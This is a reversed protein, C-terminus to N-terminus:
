KVTIKQKSKKKNKKQTKQNNSNKQDSPSTSHIPSRLWPQAIQAVSKNDNQPASAARLPTASLCSNHDTLMKTSPQDSQKTALNYWRVAEKFDTVVGEGKAYCTALKFQAEQDGQEAALTYWRIAEKLDKICGKGNEYYIGLNLQAEVVGQKALLEFLRLAEKCDENVGEGNNYCIALNFQARKQGQQAALRYYKVAEKIDKTVGEGKAYCVGLNYQALENGQEASLKFLKFAEKSDKNVGEGNNYCMALNFQAHKQGQQAALRYCKVAEKLDKAVGDGNKYCIGLIHQADRDGQEASLKLLRVAEKCDKEVIEGNLYFRALNFQAEKNGQEVALSFWKVAEKLDKDVAEGIEYLTGLYYQANQNGQEASLKFLRIAEKSDKEVIEGKIYFTGLRAQALSLGAEAASQLLDFAKKHFSKVTKTESSSRAKQICCYALMYKALCHGLAASSELWFFCQKEDNFKKQAFDYFQLALSYQAAPNDAQALATIQVLNKQLNRCLGCRCSFLTFDQQMEKGPAIEQKSDKPEPMPQSSPKKRDAVPTKDGPLKIGIGELYRVIEKKDKIYAECLAAQWEKLNTQRQEPTTKKNFIKIAELKGGAVAKILPSEESTSASTILIPGFKDILNEVISLNTSFQDIAHIITDAKEQPSFIEPNLKELKESFSKVKKSDLCAETIISHLQKLSVSTQPPKPTKSEIPSAKQESGCLRKKFFMLLSEVTSNADVPERIIDGVLTVGSKNKLGRLYIDREGDQKKHKAHKPGDIEIIIIKGTKRDKFAADVCAYKNDVLIEEIGKEGDCPTYREKFWPSIQLANVFHHQLSDEKPQRRGRLLSVIIKPLPLNAWCLFEAYQQVAMALKKSRLIPKEPEIKLKILEIELKESFTNVLIGTKSGVLRTGPKKSIVLAYLTHAIDSLSMTSAIDATNLRSVLANAQGSFVQTQIDQGSSQLIQGISLLVKTAVKPWTACPKTSILLELAKRMAESSISKPPESLFNIERCIHAIQESIEALIKHDNDNTTSKADATIDLFHTFLDVNLNAIDAIALQYTLIRLQQLGKLIADSKLPPKTLNLLLQNILNSSLLAPLRHSSALIAFGTLLRNTVDSPLDPKELRQELWKLWDEWDKEFSEIRGSQRNFTQIQFLNKEAFLGISGVISALDKSLPGQTGFTKLLHFLRAPNFQASFTFETQLTMFKNLFDAAATKARKVDTDSSTADIYEYENFLTITHCIFAHLKNANGPSSWLKRNTVLSSLTATLRELVDAPNTTITLWKKYQIFGNEPQLWQDILPQDIAIASPPLPYKLEAM